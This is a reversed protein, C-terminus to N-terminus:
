LRFGLGEVGRGSVGVTSSINPGFGNLFDVLGTRYKSKGGRVQRFVVASTLPCMFLRSRQQGCTPLNRICLRVLLQARLGHVAWPSRVWVRFSGFLHFWKIIELTGWHLLPAM